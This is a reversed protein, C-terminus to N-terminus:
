SLLEFRAESFPHITNSSYHLFHNADADKVLQGNVFELAILKPKQVADANVQIKLLLQLILNICGAAIAILISLLYIKKM